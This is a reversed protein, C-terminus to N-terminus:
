KKGALRFRLGAHISYNMFDDNAFIGNAGATLRYSGGVNFDLTRILHVSLNIGLESVFFYDDALVNKSSFLTEGFQFQNVPNVTAHGLGLKVPLSVDIRSNPHFFVENYFSVQSYEFVNPESISGKMFPFKRTDTIDISLGTALRDGFVAAGNFSLGNTQVNKIPYNLYNIDLQLYTYKFSHKKSEEDPLHLNQSVLFTCSMVTFFLFMLITKM